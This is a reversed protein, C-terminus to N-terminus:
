GCKQFFVMVVPGEALQEALTFTGGDTRELTFDPAIEPIMLVPTPVPMETPPPLTPLAVQTAIVEQTESIDLTAVDEFILIEASERQEELWENFDHGQSELTAMAAKLVLVRQIAREFTARDIEVAELAAVMTADNVGWAQELMAIREEIQEATPTQEPPVAQLILEEEIMRELVADPPQIAWGSVGGAVQDILVTKRWVSHNISYGNVSAVVPDDIVEETPTPSPEPTPTKTPPLSTPSVTPTPITAQALPAPRGGLSALMLLLGALLLCGTGAIIWIRSSSKQSM